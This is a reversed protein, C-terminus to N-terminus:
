QQPNKGSSEASTDIFADFANSAYGSGDSSMLVYVVYAALLTFCAAAILLLM